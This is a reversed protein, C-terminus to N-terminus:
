TLLILPGLLNMWIALGILSSVILYIGEKRDTFAFILYLSCLFGACGLAIPLTAPVNLLAEARYEDAGESRGTAYMLAILPSRFFNAYAFLPAFVSLSRLSWVLAAAGALLSFAIASLTGIGVKTPDAIQAAASVGGTTFARRFAEQEAYSASAYSLRPNGFDFWHYALYHTVEHSLVAIPIAVLAFLLNIISVGRLSFQRWEVM